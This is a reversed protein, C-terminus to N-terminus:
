RKPFYMISCGNGELELSITKQGPTNWQLSLQNVTNTDGAVITAGDLDWNVKVGSGATGNFNLIATQSKCIPSTVTFSAM